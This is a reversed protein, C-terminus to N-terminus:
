EKRTKLSVYSVPIRIREMMTPINKQLELEKIVEERVRRALAYHFKPVWILEQKAEKGFHQRHLQLLFYVFSKPVKKEKVYKELKEGFDILRDFGRNGDRWEVTERFLTIKNRGKYKSRDLEEGVLQTFRQIPFHPKVLLIGGSLTINPNRSFFESFDYHIREALKITEDWPGIVLLDDGGSYVVYFINDVLRRRSDGEPLSKEWERTVGKCIENLWGGFFLDFRGSLTAFRSISLPQIGQGFLVGLHDVDMKLVGLLQAGESLQSIDDFDLVDPTGKWTPATNAFFKFGFCVPKDKRALIYGDTSNLKYLITEESVQEILAEAEKETTLLGVTVDLPEFPIWVVNKSLNPIGGHVYVLFKVHPLKEGILRQKECHPCPKDEESVSKLPKDYWYTNCYKCVHYIPHDKEFFFHPKGLSTQFKRRKQEALIDDARNYVSAFDYFDKACIEVQAIQLGLEGSFEDLLWSEVAKRMEELRELVEGTNPLLLDFRGGGCFLINTIPLHLKWVFWHALVDTLLGVYFSRGRLRKATGKKEAEPKTISYIFKQIGSIDGRILLFLPKNTAINKELREKFDGSRYDRLLLILERLMEDPLTEEDIQALCMAIACTTKSHDFLSVDPVTRSLEDEEWPTASPVLTGYERLIFYLTTFDSPQYPPLSKLRDVFHDWLKEYAGPEVRSQECPFLVDRETKLRNLGLFREGGRWLERFEVRSAVDVLAAEDSKLRERGPEMEREAASLKDAVQLLMEDRNLVTKHHSAVLRAVKNALEEGLYGRISVIFSESFQAHKAHYDGGIRQSVKGIDHLLAGLVLAEKDDM